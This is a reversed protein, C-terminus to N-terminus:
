DGDWVLDVVAVSEALQVGIHGGCARAVEDTRRIWADTGRPRSAFARMAAVKRPHSPGIDFAHTPTESPSLCLRAVRHPALGERRSQGPFAMAQAAAVVADLAAVDAERHDVHNVVGPTRFLLRPDGCLVVEPRHARIIRVLQERLALDNRLAGEPQHLFTVASYGMIEAAARQEAERTNALLLPDTGAEDASGEGSTCSILHVASGQDSWAALLGGAEAEADGPHAVVILARAPARGSLRQLGTM